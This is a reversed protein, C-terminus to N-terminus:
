LVGGLAEVLPVEPLARVKVRIPKDPVQARRLLREIRDLKEKSDAWVLFENVQDSVRQAEKFESALWTIQAEHWEPPESAYYQEESLDLWVNGTGGLVAMAALWLRSITGKQKWSVEQLKESSFRHDKPPGLKVRPFDHYGAASVIMREVVSVEEGHNMRDFWVFSSFSHFCIEMTHLNHDPEAYMLDNSSFAHVPFLNNDVLLAFRDYSALLAEFSSYDIGDFEKPFFKEYLEVIHAGHQILRLHLVADQASARARSPAGIVRPKRPPKKSKKAKKRSM